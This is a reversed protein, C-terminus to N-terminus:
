YVTRLGEVAFIVSVSFVVRCLLALSRVDGVSIVNSVRSGLFGKLARGV